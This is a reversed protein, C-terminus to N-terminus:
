GRGSSTSDGNRPRATLTGPSSWARRKGRRLARSLVILVLGVAAAGTTAAAPFVDPVLQNILVTRSRFEPLVASVVTVVGVLGVIRAV